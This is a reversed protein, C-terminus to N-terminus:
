RPNGSGRPPVDGSGRTPFLKFGRAVTAKVDAEALSGFAGCLMKHAVCAKAVIEVAAQVEPAAPNPAPTGVGLSLSLDYPGVLAGGLGPVSLIAEINKVAERTEIMVLALLEGDPNLPWVDAKQAYEVDTLGWYRMALGPAWGRLGAPEPYKADRQPPYRMARVLRRAQEANDVGPLIIGFVGVDLLQKVVANFEENGEQAIRVVTTLRPRTSGEPRLNALMTKLDNALPLDRPFWRQRGGADDILFPNHEIGFYVWHEGYFAPLGQEFQEIIQNL